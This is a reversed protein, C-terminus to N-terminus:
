QIYNDFAENRKILGSDVTYTIKNTYRNKFGYVPVYFALNIHKSTKIALSFFEGSYNYNNFSEIDGSSELLIVQDAKVGFEKAIVRRVNMNTTKTM